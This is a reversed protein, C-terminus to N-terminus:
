VFKKSAGNNNIQRLPVSTAQFPAYWLPLPTAPLHSQASPCISLENSSQIHSARLIHILILIRTGWRRWSWSCNRRNEKEGWGEREGQQERPQTHTSSTSTFFPQWAFCFLVRQGYGRIDYGQECVCMRTVQTGIARLTHTHTHRRTVVRKGYHHYFISLNALYSFTCPGGARLSCQGVRVEKEAVIWITICIYIYQFWTAGRVGNWPKRIEAFHFYIHESFRQSQNEHSKLKLRLRSESPIRVPNPSFEPEVSTMSSEPQAKQRATYCPPQPLTLRVSVCENSAWNKNMRAYLLQWSSASFFYFLTSISISIDFFFM